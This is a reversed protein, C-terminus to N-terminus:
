DPFAMDLMHWHTNRIKSLYKKIIEVHFKSHPLISIRASTTIINIIDDDTITIENGVNTKTKNKMVKEDIAKVIKDILDLVTHTKSRTCNEVFFGNKCFGDKTIRIIETQSTPDNHDCEAISIRNNNIIILCRPPNPYIPDCMTFIETEGSVSIQSHYGALYVNVAIMDALENSKFLEPLEVIIM